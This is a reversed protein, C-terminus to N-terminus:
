PCGQSILYNKGVYFPYRVSEPTHLPVRFLSLFFRVALGFCCVKVDFINYNNHCLIGNEIFRSKKWHKIFSQVSRAHLYPYRLHPDDVLPEVYGGGDKSLKM